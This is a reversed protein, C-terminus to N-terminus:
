NRKCSIWVGNSFLQLSFARKRQWVNEHLLKQWSSMNWILNNWVLKERLSSVYCMRCAFLSIINIMKHPQSYIKYLSIRKPVPGLYMCYICEEHCILLPTSDGEIIEWSKEKSAHKRKTKVASAAVSCSLSLFLSTSGPSPGSEWGLVVTLKLVTLFPEESFFAAARNKVSELMNFMEQTARTERPREGTWQWPALQNTHVRGRKPKAFRIPQTKNMNVTLNKRLGGLGGCSYAISEKIAKERPMQRFLLWIYPFLHDGTQM